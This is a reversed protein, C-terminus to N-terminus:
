LNAHLPSGPPRGKKKPKSRSGQHIIVVICKKPSGPHADAFEGGTEACQGRQPQNEGQRGAVIDINGDIAFLAFRQGLEVQGMGAHMFEDQQARIRHPDVGAIRKGDM